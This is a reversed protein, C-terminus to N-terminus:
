SKLLGDPDSSIDKIQSIIKVDLVSMYTMRTVSCTRPIRGSGNLWGVKTSLSRSTWVWALFRGSYRRHNLNM